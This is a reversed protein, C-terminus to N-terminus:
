KATLNIDLQEKFSESENPTGSNVGIIENVATADRQMSEILDSRQSV